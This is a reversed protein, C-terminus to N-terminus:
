RPARLSGAILAATLGFAALTSYTENYGGALNGVARARDL